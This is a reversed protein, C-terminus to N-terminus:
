TFKTIGPMPVVVEPAEGWEYEPPTLDEQSAMADDWTIVKGTYTAMRGMIAMMTSKTMYDGNNIHNGSKLGAYMARHEEVYMSPKDGEFKWVDKGKPEITNKLIAAKGTTGLVYDDVDNKCGHMQRTYAFVKMTPFEYCVAHHDYINGFKAETRVQRGGLGVCSAPAQDNNLWVAKDLSHVHQEVIHDGSLWTYYLWNRCQYEMDTWQPERPKQWLTGAL